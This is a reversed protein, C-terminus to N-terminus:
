EILNIFGRFNGDAVEVLVVFGLGCSIFRGFLLVLLYKYMKNIRTHDSKSLLIGTMLFTIYFFASVFFLMTILNFSVAFINLVQYDITDLNLLLFLVATAITYVIQTTLLIKKFIQIIRPNQKTLKFCMTIYQEFVILFLGVM